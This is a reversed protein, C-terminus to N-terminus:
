SRKAGSAEAMSFRRGVIFVAFPLIALLPLCHLAVKLGVADAAAAGTLFPGAALGLINNFNFRAM